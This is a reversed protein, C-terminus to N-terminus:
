WNSFYLRELVATPILWLPRKKYQKAVAPIAHGVPLFPRFKSSHAKIKCCKPQVWAISNSPPWEVPRTKFLFFRIRGFRWLFTGANTPKSNEFVSYNPAFKLGCLVCFWMGFSLVVKGAKWPESDSMGATKVLEAMPFALGRGIQALCFCLSNKNVIM